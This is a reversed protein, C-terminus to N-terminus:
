SVVFDTGKFCNYDIFVMEISLLIGFLSHNTIIISEKECFYHCHSIKLKWNSFIIKSLKSNLCM